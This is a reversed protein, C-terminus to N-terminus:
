SMRMGRFYGDVGSNSRRKSTKKKKRLYNGEKQRGQVWFGLEADPRRLERTLNASVLLNANEAKLVVTTGFGDIAFFDPFKKVKEEAILSMSPLHFLKVFASKEYNDNGEMENPVGNSMFLMLYVGHYVLHQTLTGCLELKRYQQLLAVATMRIGRDSLYSKTIITDRSGVIVSCSSEFDFDLRLCDKTVAKTSGDPFFHVEELYSCDKPLMTLTCKNLEEPSVGVDFLDSGTNIGKQFGSLIIENRELTATRYSSWVIAGSTSSFLFTADDNLDDLDLSEQNRLYEIWLSTKLLFSGDGCAYCKEISKVHFETVAHFGVQSKTDDHLNQFFYDRIMSSLDLTTVDLYGLESPGDAGASELLTKRPITLFKFGGAGEIVCGVVSGDLDVDVIAPRVIGKIPVSQRVVRKLRRSGSETIIVDYIDLICRRKQAVLMRLASWVKVVPSTESEYDECFALGPPLELFKTGAIYDLGLSLTKLMKAAYFHSLFSSRALNTTLNFNPSDPAPWNKRIILTKWLDPSKKGIESHWRKCVLPLKGAADDGLFILIYELVPAPLFTVLQQHYYKVEVPIAALNQCPLPELSCPDQGISISRRRSGQIGFRLRAEEDKSFVFGDRYRDFVLIGEIAVYVISGISCYKEHLHSVIGDSLKHHNDNRIDQHLLHYMAHVTPRGPANDTELLRMIMNYAREAANKSSHLAEELYTIRSRKRQEQGSLLVDYLTREFASALDSVLYGDEGDLHKIKEGRTLDHTDSQFSPHRGYFCGHYLPQSEFCVAGKNSAKKARRITGRHLKGHPCSGHFFFESCLHDYCSTSKPSPPLAQNGANGGVTLSNSRARTGNQAPLSPISTPPSFSSSLSSSELKSADSEGDEGMHSNTREEPKSDTWLHIELTDAERSAHISDLFALLKQSLLKYYRNQDRQQKREKAAIRREASKEAKTEWNDLKVM